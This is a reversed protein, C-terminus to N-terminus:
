NYMSVKTVQTHGITKLEKYIGKQSVRTSPYITDPTHTHTHTRLISFHCRQTSNRIMLNHHFSKKKQQSSMMLTSM